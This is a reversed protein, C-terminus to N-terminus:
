LVARYINLPWIFSLSTSMLVNANIPNSLTLILFYMKKAFFSAHGGERDWGLNVGSYYVNLEMPPYDCAISKSTQKLLQEIRKM